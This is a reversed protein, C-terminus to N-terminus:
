GRRSFISLRFSYRLHHHHLFIYDWISNRFPEELAVHGDLVLDVPIQQVVLLGIQLGTDGRLTPASAKKLSPVLVAM